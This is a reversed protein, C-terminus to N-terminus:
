RRAARFRVWPTLAVVTEHSLMSILADASAGQVFPALRPNARATNLMQNAWPRLAEITEQKKETARGRSIDSLLANGIDLPMREAYLMQTLAGDAAQAEETVTGAAAPIRYDYHARPPQYIAELEAMGPNSGAVIKDRLALVEPEYKSRWEWDSIRGAARDKTIEDLRAQASAADGAAPASPENRLIPALADGRGMQAEHAAAAWAATGPDVGAAEFEAATAPKSTDVSM